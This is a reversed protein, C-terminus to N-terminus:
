NKLCHTAYIPKADLNGLKEALVLDECARANSKLKIRVKAIALHYDSIKSNIKIATNLEMLAEKNKNQKEFIMAKLHYGEHSHPNNYLFTNVYKMSMLLDEKNYYCNSIYYNSMSFTSDLQNLNEFYKISENYNELKFETLGLYYIAFVNLRNNEYLNSFVKLASDYENENFLKIGDKLSLESVALVKDDTKVKAMLPKVDNKETKKNMLSRKNLSSQANITISSFWIFVLIINVIFSKM